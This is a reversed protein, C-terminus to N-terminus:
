VLVFLRFNRKLCVLVSYMLQGLSKWFNALKKRTSLTVKMSLSEIVDGAVILDAQGADTVRLVTVTAPGGRQPPIDAKIRSIEIAHHQDFQGWVLSRM